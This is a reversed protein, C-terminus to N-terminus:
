MQRADVIAAPLTVVAGEMEETVEVQCGLRSTDTLGSALDLMDDEEPDGEELGDFIKQPLIVHCTSCSVAGDCVGFSEFDLDNDRIADLLTDGVRSMAAHSKGRRDVFHIKVQAQKASSTHLEKSSKLWNLAKTQQKCGKIINM